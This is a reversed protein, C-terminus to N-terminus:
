ITGGPDLDDRYSLEEERSSQEAAYATDEFYGEVFNLVEVRLEDGMPGAYQDELAMAYEDLANFLREEAGQLSGEKLIKRKEEKIIQKLQRKTIKM